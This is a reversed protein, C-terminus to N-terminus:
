GLWGNIVLTQVTVQSGSGWGFVLGHVFSPHRPKWLLNNVHRVLDSPASFVYFFQLQLSLSLYWFGSGGSFVPFAWNLCSLSASLDRQFM